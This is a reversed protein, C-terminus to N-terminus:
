RAAFRGTRLFRVTMEQVDRRRMLFSHGCPVLARDTEGPLRTEDLSVTRDRTGAIVGIELGAPTPISAAVAGRITLDPLPRLLWGLWPLARDAMVAGRNPPTMLVIRGLHEPRHHALISRIVICGLSHGVFHVRAGAERQPDLRGAPDPGGNAAAIRARVIEVLASLRERTSPYGVNMTAFGARECALAIPSMSRWTRGMGHLLVVHDARAGNM